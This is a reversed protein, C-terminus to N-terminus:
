NTAAAAARGRHTGPPLERWTGRGDEDLEIVLDPVGRSRVHMCMPTGTTVYVESEGLDKRTFLSQVAPTTWLATNPPLVMFICRGRTADEKVALLVFGLHEGEQTQLVVCAPIGVPQM